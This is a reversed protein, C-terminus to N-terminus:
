IIKPGSDGFLSHFKVDIKTSRSDLILKIRESLNRSKQLKPGRNPIALRLCQLMMPIIRRAVLQNQPKTSERDGYFPKSFEEYDPNSCGNSTEFSVQDIECMGGRTLQFTPGLLFMQEESLMENAFYGVLRMRSEM